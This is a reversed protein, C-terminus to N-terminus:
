AYASFKSILRYLYQSIIELGEVKQEFTHTCSTNSSLTTITAHIPMKNYYTNFLIEYDTIDGLQNYTVIQREFPTNITLSVNEIKTNTDITVKTPKTNSITCSLEPTQPVYYNTKLYEDNVLATFTNLGPQHERPIHTGKSDLVYCTDLCLEVPVESYCTLSDNYECWYDTGTSTTKMQFNTQTDDMQVSHNEIQKNIRVSIPITYVYDESLNPPIIWAVELDTMIGPSIVEFNEPAFIEVSKFSSDTTTITIPIHSKHNVNKPISVEYNLKKNGYSPVYNITYNVQVNPAEGTFQVNYQNQDMKGSVIFPIHDNDVQSYQNFTIDLPTWQEDIYLEAWSHPQWPENFLESTTYAYGHVFLAPINHMRAGAILTATIEDCVGEENQLVWSVPQSGQAAISSLNYEINKQIYTILQMVIEKNSGSLHAFKKQVIASNWDVFEDSALYEEHELVPETASITYTHKGKSLTYTQPSPTFLLDLTINKDTSIDITIDQAFVGPIFTLHM